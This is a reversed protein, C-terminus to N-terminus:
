YNIREGAPRAQDVARSVANADLGFESYDDEDQLNRMWSMVTANTGRGKSQVVQLQCVPGAALEEPTLAKAKEVIASQVTNARIPSGTPAGTELNLKQILLTVCDSMGHVTDVPEADKAGLILFPEGLAVIQDLRNGFKKDKTFAGKAEAQEAPQESETTSL